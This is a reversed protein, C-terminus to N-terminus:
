QRCLKERFDAALPLAYIDKVQGHWHYSNGSKSAGKSTGLKIWNSAKYCTGKFRSPDVFSELLYLDLGYLNKWDEVVRRAAMSLVHSALNKIRVWPLILFRHNGAIGQLNRQRTL